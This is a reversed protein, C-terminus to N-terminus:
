NNKYLVIGYQNDYTVLCCFDISKYSVIAIHM